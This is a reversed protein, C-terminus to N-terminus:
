ASSALGNRAIVERYWSASRKPTRKQTAFDVYVTGWRQTYGQAWEFNDLLSWLHYGELRVGAAIARHAAVLHDTLYAVRGHDDFVGGKPAASGADPIGNETIVLPIDGYDKTLRILLDTLGQPYIQEWTAISTPKLTVYRGTADVFV